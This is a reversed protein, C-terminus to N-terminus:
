FKETYTSPSFVPITSKLFDKKNRTIISEAKASMAAFYQMADELDAWDSTLAKQVESAGIPVVDVLNIITNLHHRIRDESMFKKLLYHTNLLTLSSICGSCKKDAILQFLDGADYAFPVRGSLLDVLVDTDIFIRPILIAM